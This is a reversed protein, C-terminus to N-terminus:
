HWPSGNGIGEFTNLLKFCLSPKPVTPSASAQQLWAAGAAKAHKHVSM